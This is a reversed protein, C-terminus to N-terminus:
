FPNGNNLGDQLSKVVREVWKEIEKLSAKKQILEGSEKAFQKSLEIAVGGEDKPEAQLIKTYMDKVQQLVGNLGEQDEAVLNKWAFSIPNTELQLRQAEATTYKSTLVLLGKYMQDFLDDM